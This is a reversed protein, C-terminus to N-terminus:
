VQLTINPKVTKSYKLFRANGLTTKQRETKNNIGRVYNRYRDYFSKSIDKVM